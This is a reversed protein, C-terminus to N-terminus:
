FQADFPKCIKVAVGIRTRAAQIIRSAEPSSEVATSEPVDIMMVKHLLVSTGAIAPPKAGDSGIEAIVVRRPKHRRYLWLPQIMGSEGTFGQLRNKNYVAILFEHQNRFARPHFTFLRAASQLPVGSEVVASKKM